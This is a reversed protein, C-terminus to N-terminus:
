SQFRPGFFLILSYVSLPQHFESVKYVSKKSAQSSAPFLSARKSGGFLFSNVMPSGLLNVKLSTLFSTSLNEEFNKSKPKLFSSLTIKCSGFITSNAIRYM